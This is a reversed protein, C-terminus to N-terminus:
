PLFPLPYQNDEEGTVNARQAQDFDALMQPYTKVGDFLANIVAMNSRSNSHFYSPMANTIIDLFKTKKFDPNMSQHADSLADDVYAFTDCGNVLFIQYQDRSFEGLGALRRINAGLGSHGSYSVFDSTKTRANYFKFFEDGYPILKIDDVLFLMVDVEGKESDFVLHVRKQEKTLNLWNWDAPSLNSQKPKGYKQVLKKVTDRYANLGADWDSDAEHDAKGFILTAVLRQDEWVKNYEPYKNATNAKSERLSIKTKVVLDNETASLKSLDCSPKLPRYYYWFIGSSVNHAEWALCEKQGDEDSGYKDFFRQLFYYGGEKPLYATYSTPVSQELPWAIQLKAAYTIRYRGNELAEKEQISVQTKSTDPTGGNLGNLQGITYMLQEKVEDELQYDGTSRSYIVGRSITGELLVSHASAFKPIAKAFVPRTFTFIAFLLFNSLSTLRCM